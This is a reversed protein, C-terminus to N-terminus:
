MCALNGIGVSQAYSVLFSNLSDNQFLHDSFIVIIRNCRNAILEMVADFEFVGPILDRTKEFVQLVLILAM